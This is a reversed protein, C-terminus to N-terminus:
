MCCRQIGEVEDTLIMEVLQAETVEWSDYVSYEDATTSWEIGYVKALEVCSTFSIIAKLPM